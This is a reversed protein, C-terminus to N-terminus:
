AMMIFVRGFGCSSSVIWGKCQWLWDPLGKSKHHHYGDVHLTRDDNPMKNVICYCSELEAILEAKTMKIMSMTEREKKREELPFFVHNVRCHGANELRVMKLGSNFTPSLVLIGGIVM